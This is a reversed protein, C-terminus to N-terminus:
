TPKVSATGLLGDYLMKTIALNKGVSFHWSYFGSSTDLCSREILVALQFGEDLGQPSLRLGSLGSVGNLM